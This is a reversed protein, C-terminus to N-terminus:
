KWSVHAYCLGVFHCYPLQNQLEDPMEPRQAKYKEYMKHRFTKEKSDFACAVLDPDESKILKLVQNIFGYLASTELGYSTKLPNKILAFHARYLLAYGDIIFFRKRNNKSLAM